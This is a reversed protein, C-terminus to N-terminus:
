ADPTDPRNWGKRLPGRMQLNWRARRLCELQGGVGSDPGCAPSDNPRRRPHAQQRVPRAGRRLLKGACDRAAWAGVLQSTWAAIAPSPSRVEDGASAELCASGVVVSQKSDAAAADVHVRIPGAPLACGDMLVSLNYLGSQQIAYAVEYAGDLLDTSVTRVKTDAKDSRVELKCGGRQVANGYKDRSLVKFTAVEGAVVRMAAVSSLESMSGFAQAAEVSLAFPSGCIHEADIMVCLSYKGSKFATYSGEYGGEKLKTARGRVHHSPGALWVRIVKDDCSALRGFHDCIQIIFSSAVGAIAVSLGDGTARCRRASVAGAGVSVEFPSGQVHSNTALLSLRCKGSQTPSYRVMCAGSENTLVVVAAECAGALEGRLLGQTPVVRNGFRDHLTVTCLAEEGVTAKSLGDGAAVCM